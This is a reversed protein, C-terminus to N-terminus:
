DREIIELECDVEGDEDESEMFTATIDFIIAQEIGGQADWVKVAGETWEGESQEVLRQAFAGAADEPSTAGLMASPESTPDDVSQAWYGFKM